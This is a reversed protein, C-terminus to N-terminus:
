GKEAQRLLEESSVWRERAEGILYISGTILLPSESESALYSEIGDQVDASILIEHEKSQLRVQEALQEAPQAPKGFVKPESIIFREAIPLLERIIGEASKNAIAGFQVVFKQDPYDAKISRVLSAMKHPNHAGDLVIMPKKQMIEFRGSFTLNSFAEEIAERTLVFDSTESLWQVASIATAANRRQFTGEFPVALREFNAVSITGDGHDFFDLDRLASGKVKAEQTIIPIAEPETVANLIRGNPKIIGAKHWAIEGLTEGLSQTHDYGISTLVSLEPTIVNTPDFRGGMGTEIVAWDVGARAYYLYTLAVWAEGYKLFRGSARWAEYIERFERVLEAFASPAIMQGDIVLKENCIQLYPSTHDGTQMGCASLLRAILVTVSGKGSTGAIHVTKYAREPSGAFVLFEAMRELQEEFQQRLTSRDKQIFYRKGEPDSILTYLWNRQAHYEEFM